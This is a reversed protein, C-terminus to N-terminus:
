KGRQMAKIEREEACSICTTCCPNFSLRKEAILDECDVCVGYSNDEIRSLANEIFTIRTSLRSILQSDVEALQKGQIEDVEDGEMDIVSTKELLKSKLEQKEALLKNKINLVFDKNM